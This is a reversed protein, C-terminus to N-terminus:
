RSSKKSAMQTTMLKTQWSRDGNQVNHHNYWSQWGAHWSWWRKCKCGNWTSAPLLGNESASVVTLTLWYKVCSERWAFTSSSSHFFVGKDSEATTRFWDSTSGSFHVASQAKDYLNWHCIINAIDYNGMFSWAKDYLYWHCIINAIINCKRITAWLAEHRPM